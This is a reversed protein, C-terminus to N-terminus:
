SRRLEAGTAKTVAAIVRASVDEIEAETLTAKSPELRVAIAVSKKGAALSGGEFADFVSVTAILTKDSGQAARVIKDAEVDADVVFAFDREVAQLDSVQM